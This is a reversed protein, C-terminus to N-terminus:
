FYSVLLERYSFAVSFVEKSLDVFELVSEGQLLVLKGEQLGFVCILSDWESHKTFENKRQVVCFMAGIFYRSPNM